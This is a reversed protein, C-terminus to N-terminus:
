WYYGVLPSSTTVHGTSRVKEIVDVSEHHVWFPSSGVEVGLATHNPSGFPDRIRQGRGFVKLLAIINTKQLKGADIQDNMTNNFFLNPSLWKPCRNKMSFHQISSINNELEFGLSDLGM